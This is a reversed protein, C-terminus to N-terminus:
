SEDSKAIKSFAEVLQSDQKPFVSRLDIWLREHQVRPFVPIEGTRLAKALADVSMGTPKISVCYSDVRQTPVSGGGLFCEGAVPEASEVCDMAQIQPALREARNKLNDISASLLSLLPVQTEAKDPDRYLKLTAALAALTIKDVRLARMMPHKTIMDIYKKKGVIIGAQPGGLLKDGSFLVVDSGAAVSDRAMPEDQIGYKSFDVLAGSGIDDIVPLDHQRGVAILEQLSAEQTFGNIVYNSTHVRMLAATDENIANEYDSIRTKNTTGVERLIAGSVTMVDPLRYSGGIEVLHGRSVIIERGGGLAALALMTAGANNNAIAAAEAGTVECLLKTVSQVRQSRNGSELDVEVSAYGSAINVIEQIASEPLPARGLGTHLLIGTANIVPRLKAQQDTAIWQAIKEALDGAAPLKVESTADRIDDRLNDLFSRVETVVVNHSVNDVLNKLPESELLETVSPINKFPNTPM